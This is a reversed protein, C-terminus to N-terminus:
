VSGDSGWAQESMAFDVVGTLTSDVWTWTAATWPTTNVNGDRQTYSTRSAFRTDEWCNPWRVGPGNVFSIDYKGDEDCDFQTQNQSSSTGQTGPTVKACSVKGDTSMVCLNPNDWGQSGAMQVKSVGSALITVWSTTYNAAQDWCNNTTGVVANNYIIQCENSNSSTPSGDAQNYKNNQPDVLIKMKTLQQWGNVATKSYGPWSGKGICKLEGATTVVCTTFGNTAVDTVTDIGYAAVPTTESDKTTADGLQGYTNSGWCVLKSAATVACGGKSSSNGNNVTYTDIKKAGVLATYGSAATYAPVSQEVQPCGSGVCGPPPATQKITAISYLAPTAALKKVPTDAKASAVTTGSVVATGGVLAVV